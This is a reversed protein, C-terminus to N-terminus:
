PHAVPVRPEGGVKLPVVEHRSGFVLLDRAEPSSILGDLEDPEVGREILNLAGEGVDRGFDEQVLLVIPLEALNTQDEVSQHDVSVGSMDLGNPAPRGGALVLAEVLKLVDEQDVLGGLEALGRPIVAGPEVALEGFLRLFLGGVLRFLRVAGKFLRDGGWPVGGRMQGGCVFRGGSFAVIRRLDLGRRAGGPGARLGVGFLREGLQLLM